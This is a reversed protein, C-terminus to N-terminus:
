TSTLMDRTHRLSSVCKWVSTDLTLLRAKRSVLAFREITTTDLKRLVVLLLEVPLRQIHVPRREEEPLFEQEHQWEAVISALSGQPIVNGSKATSAFTPHIVLSKLDHMVGDVSVRKSGSPAHAPLQTVAYFQPEIKHYARDVNPDMRFAMRYLELAEDLNSQQECVVARRYVEVARQLKPGLPASTTDTVRPIQKIYIQPTHIGARPIGPAHGKDIAEVPGPRSSTADSPGTPHTQSLGIQTVAKKRRVEEKWEERFRALEESTDTDTMSPQVSM